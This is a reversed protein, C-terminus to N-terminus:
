RVYEVFENGRECFEKVMTCVLEFSMGSHGQSDIKGKAEDLTGNNNLIEIIELCNGLEMGRYLDGLRIPVIEDWYNWKDETLVQRGKEMWVRTLEPIKDNHEQLKRDYEDRWEQQEKDFDSKNKGTISKYATDLTVTDSYLSVGNFEGYALVGEKRYTLLERVASDITSGAYFDIKLYKKNM